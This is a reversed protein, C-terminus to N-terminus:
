NHSFSNTEKEILRHFDYQNYPEFTISKNEPKSFSPEIKTIKDLHLLNDSINEINFVVPEHSIGYEKIKPKRGRKKPLKEDIKEKPRRGRKKLVKEEM